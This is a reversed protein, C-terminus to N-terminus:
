EQTPPVTIRPQIVRSGPPVDSFVVSGAAILSDEGITIGPIVTTGAGIVSGQKVKVGGALTVGPCIHCEVGIDCDHDIRSGTNVISDRGISARPQVIAGALIQVGEDLNAKPATIATPDVVTRFHFGLNRMRSACTHRNSKGVTVMGIGNVLIIDRTTWADIEEDKGIVPVGLIETEVPDDPSTVGLINIGLRQLSSIIVAAHGGAGLVIVPRSDSPKSDYSNM